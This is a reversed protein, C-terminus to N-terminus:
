VIKTKMSNEFIRRQPNDKAKDLNKGSHHILVGSAFALVLKGENPTQPIVIAIWCCISWFLLSNARDIYKSSTMKKTRKQTLRSASITMPQRYLDVYLVEQNKATLRNMYSNEKLEQLSYQELIRSNQTQPYRFLGLGNAKYSRSM